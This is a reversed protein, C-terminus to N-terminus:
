QEEVINLEKILAEQFIPNRLLYDHGLGPIDEKTLIGTVNFVKINGPLHKSNKPGALGMRQKSNLIQSFKLPIDKANVYVEVSDTLQLINHFGKGEEFSDWSADSGLFSIWNYVKVLPIEYKERKRLYNKLLQNGMSSCMLNVSFDRSHNEFFASDTLFDELM